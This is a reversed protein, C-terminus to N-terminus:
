ILAAKIKHVIFLDCRAETFIFDLAYFCIMYCKRSFVGGRGGVGGCVCM